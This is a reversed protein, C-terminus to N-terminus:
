LRDYFAGLRFRATNNAIFWIRAVAGYEVEVRGVDSKYARPVSGTVTRTYLHDIHGIEQELEGTM